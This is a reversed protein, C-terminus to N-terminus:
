LGGNKDLFKWLELVHLFAKFKEDHEEAPIFATEFAPDNMVKPVRVVLGSLPREAHGMEILAEAYAVIQLRAELYIGKGSKWDTIVNGRGGTPLDLECLLDFTGAYGHKVSWCQQEVLLPVMNVSKRWDEWAMFGWEAAEDQKPDALPAPKHVEQKLERRVAYEALAHIQQGIDGANRLLKASAKEKGIRDELTTIYALRGMKVSKPIDDWLDAAARVVMERETKAAWNVLAPKNIAGLITTVSPLRSGDPLEYLRSSRGFGDNRSHRRAAMQNGKEQRAM